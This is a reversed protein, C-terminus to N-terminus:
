PAVVMIRYFRSPQSSPPSDTLVPGSDTWHMQAGAGAIVQPSTKWAGGPTSCYQVYYKYGASAFFSFQFTGDPMYQCGDIVPASPPLKASGYDSGLVQPVLTPAPPIRSAVYYQIVFSGTAGGAIPLTYDIYPIGGNTGTANVVYVM